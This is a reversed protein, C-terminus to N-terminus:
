LPSALSTPERFPRLWLVNGEDEVDLSGSIFFLFSIIDPAM